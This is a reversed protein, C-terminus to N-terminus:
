INSKLLRNIQYDLKSDVETQIDTKLNPSYELVRNVMQPVSVSYKQQIPYRGKGVRAFIGIHGSRMKAIFSRGLPKFGNQRIVQAYVMKAKQRRNPTIGFNALPLASGRFRLMGVLNDPGARQISVVEKGRTNKKKLDFERDIEGYIKRRAMTLSTNITGQIAREAGNKINALVIRALDLKKADITIFNSM